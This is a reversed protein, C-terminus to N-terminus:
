ASAGEQKAEWAEIDSLKWRTSGNIKIPSPFRGERVWRWITQRCVSYHNSLYKDTVYGNTVPQKSTTTSEVTNM